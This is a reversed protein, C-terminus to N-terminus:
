IGNDYNIRKLPLNICRYINLCEVCVVYYYKGLMGKNRTSFKNKDDCNCKKNYDYGEGIKINAEM